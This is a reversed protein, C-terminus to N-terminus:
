VTVEATQLTAIWSITRSAQGTVKVFLVGTTTDVDVDISWTSAGADAGIEVIDSVILTTTAASSDRKALASFTWGKVDGYSYAKASVVGTVTVVSNNELVLQNTASATASDSRMATKTANTTKVGLVLLGKQTRIGTIPSNSAPFASFGVIGKTHGNGGGSVLSYASNATHNTGGAIASFDGSATNNSGGSVVSYQGSATNIAGGGVSSFLQSATNNSGGAVVASAASATNTDGGSVVAYGGGSATNSIGGGIFSGAASATNTQGGAVTSTNATASNTNGGGIFSYSGSATHDYGSAVGAYDASATHSRGGAISSYFGSSTNDGGGGVTSVLGTALNGTGGGVTAGNQTAQCLSGGAVTSNTGSSVNAYGGGIVALSGSAVQTAATRVTQWDVAYTGRKDGGSVAGNPIQALKAGTGKPVLAVDGDTTAVASTLSAVNVTANPSATNYAGTVPLSDTSVSKGAPYTCFVDKVSSGFNVLSGSNSSALVTDRTLSGAGVTGIGVEWDSTAQICYYTTNGIGISSFAQYGQVAGLLTLTGTGSTSTTEKVRDKLVLAM